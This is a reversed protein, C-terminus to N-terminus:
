RDTVTLVLRAAKASLLTRGLQVTTTYFLVFEGAPARAAVPGHRFIGAVVERTTYKGTASSANAHVVVSNQM